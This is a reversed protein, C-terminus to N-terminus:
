IISGSLLRYFSQMTLVTISLLSIGELSGLEAVFISVCM